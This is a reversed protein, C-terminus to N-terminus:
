CMGLMCVYGDRSLEREVPANEVSCRVGSSYEGSHM